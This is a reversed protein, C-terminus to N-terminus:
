SLVGLLALLKVCDLYGQKYLERQTIESLISEQELLARFDMCDGDTIFLDTECNIIHEINEYLEISKEEAVAYAGNRKRLGQLITEIRGDMFESVQVHM